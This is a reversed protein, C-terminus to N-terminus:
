TFSRVLTITAEKQTFSIWTYQIFAINVFSCHCCNWIILIPAKTFHFINHNNHTYILLYNSFIYWLNSLFLMRKTKITNQLCCHYLCCFTPKWTLIRWYLIKRDVSLFSWKKRWCNMQTHQSMISRHM